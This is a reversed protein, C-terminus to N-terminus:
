EEFKIVNVLDTLHNSILGELWYNLQANLYSRVIIVNFIIESKKSSKDTIALKISAVISVWLIFALCKM